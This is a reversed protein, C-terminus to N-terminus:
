TIFGDSLQRNIKLRRDKNNHQQCRIHFRGAACRHNWRFMQDPSFGPILGSTYGSFEDESQKRSECMEECKEVQFYQGEDPRHQMKSRDEAM